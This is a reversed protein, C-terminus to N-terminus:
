ETYVMLAKVLKDGSVQIKGIIFDDHDDQGPSAPTGPPLGLNSKSTVVVSYVGKNLTTSPFPKWPLTRDPTADTPISVLPLASATSTGELLSITTMNEADIGCLQGISLDVKTEDSLVEFQFYYVTGKLDFSKLQEACASQAGSTGDGIRYVQDTGFEITKAPEAEVATTVIPSPNPSPSPTSDAVVIAAATSRRPPEPEEDAHGVPAGGKFTKQGTCGALVSLTSAIIIRKM